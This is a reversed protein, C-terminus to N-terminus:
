IFVMKRLKLICPELSKFGLNYKLHQILANDRIELLHNSPSGRPIHRSFRFHHRWDLCQIKEQSSFGGLDKHWGFCSIHDRQEDSSFNRSVHAELCRFRESLIIIVEGDTPEYNNELATSATSIKALEMDKEYDIAVYGM